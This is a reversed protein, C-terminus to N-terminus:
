QTNKIAAKALEQQKAADEAEKIANAMKRVDATAKQSSTSYEQYGRKIELLSQNYAKNTIKGANLAKVTNTIQREFKKTATIASNVEKIDASVKLQIEDAM